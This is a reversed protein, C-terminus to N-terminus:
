RTSALLIHTLALVTKSGTTTENVLEESQLLYYSVHACETSGCDCNEKVQSYRKVGDTMCSRLAAQWQYVNM